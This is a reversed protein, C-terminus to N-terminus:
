AYRAVTMIYLAVYDAIATAAEASSLDVSRGHAYRNRKKYLDTFARDFPNLWRKLHMLKINRATWDFQMAMQGLGSAKYWRGNAKFYLEALLAEFFLCLDCLYRRRDSYDTKAYCYEYLDQPLTENLNKNSSYRIFSIFGDIAADFDYFEMQQFRNRYNRLERKLGAQLNNWDFGLRYTIAAREEIPTEVVQATMEDENEASPKIEYDSEYAIVESRVVYVRGDITELHVNIAPLRQNRLAREVTSRDQKEELHENVIRIADVLTIRNEKIRKIENAIISRIQVYFGYKVGKLGIIDFNTKGFESDNKKVQGEELFFPHDQGSYRNVTTKIMGRIRSEYDSGKAQIEIVKILDKFGISEKGELVDKIRNLIWNTLGDRTPNSWSFDPYDGVSDKLCFHNTDKVNVSCFETINARISRENDVTYGDAELKSVVDQYNFIVKEMVFAKITSRIPALSRGYWWVGKEKHYIGYNNLAQTNESAKEHYLEEFLRKAESMAIPQNDYVLRALRQEKNVLHEQKIRYGPAGNDEIVGKEVIEDCALLNGIFAEDYDVEDKIKDLEEDVKALVTEKDILCVSKCMAKLFARKVKEYIGKTDAPIVFRIGDIIDVFDCSLVEKLLDDNGAKGIFDEIQRVNSYYCIDRVSKLEELLDRNLRINHCITKGSLLADTIKQKIQRVSERGIGLEGGIEQLEKKENYYKDLIGIVNDVSGQICGDADMVDRYRPIDKRERFLLILDNIAKFICDIPSNDVSVASPLDRVTHYENWSSIITDSNKEVIDRWQGAIMNARTTSNSPVYNLLDALTKIGLNNMKNGNKSFEAWNVYNQIESLPIRALSQIKPNQELQNQEEKYEPTTKISNFLVMYPTNVNIGEDLKKQISNIFEEVEFGGWEQVVRPRVGNIGYTNIFERITM